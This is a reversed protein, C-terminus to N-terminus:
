KFKKQAQLVQSASEDGQSQATQLLTTIALMARVALQKESSKAEPASCLSQVASYATPYDKAQLANVVQESLQKVAPKAKSFGKDFQAPIQEAALPPPPGTQRSCGGSGFAFVILLLWIANQGVLKSPM